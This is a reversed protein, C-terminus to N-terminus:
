IGTIPGLQSAPQNSTKKEGLRQMSRALSSWQMSFLASVLGEPLTRIQQELIASCVHTDTYPSGEIEVRTVEGSRFKFILSDRGLIGVQSLDILMSCLVVLTSETADHM